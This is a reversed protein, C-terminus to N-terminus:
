YYILLLGLTPAPSERAEPLTSPKSESSEGVLEGKKDKPLQDQSPNNRLGTQAVMSRCYCSWKDLYLRGMLKKKKCTFSYQM